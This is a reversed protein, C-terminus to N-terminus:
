IRLVGPCTQAHKKKKLNSRQTGSWCQLEQRCALTNPQQWAVELYAAISVDDIVGHMFNIGKANVSRFLGTFRRTLSMGPKMGEGRSCPSSLCCNELMSTATLVNESVTIMRQIIVFEIALSTEKSPRASRALLPAFKKLKNSQHSADPIEGYM